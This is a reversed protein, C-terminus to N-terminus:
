QGFARQFTAFDLLDIHNDSTIDGPVCVTEEVPQSPGGICDFFLAFDSLDVVSDQNMDGRRVCSWKAFRFSVKGGAHVTGGATYLAPGSGDDFGMLAKAEAYDAELSSWTTGDWKGISGSGGAYLAPGTGDDFVTLARVDVSVPMETGVASWTSGNWRALGDAPVGGANTFKGGVYLAQGGGDDFVTLAHVGRGYADGLEVGSGVASWTARWWAGPSRLSDERMCPRAPVMTSSLWLTSPAVM